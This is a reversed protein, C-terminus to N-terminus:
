AKECEPVHKKIETMTVAHLSMMRKTNYLERPSNSNSKYNLLTTISNFGYYNMFDSFKLKLNSIQINSYYLVLAAREKKIGM